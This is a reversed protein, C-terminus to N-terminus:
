LILIGTKKDNDSCIDKMVNKMFENYLRLILDQTHSFTKNNAEM